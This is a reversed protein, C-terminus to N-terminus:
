GTTQASLEVSLSRGRQEHVICGSVKNRDINEASMGNDREMGGSLPALRPAFSREYFPQDIMRTPENRPSIALRNRGAGSCHSYLSIAM